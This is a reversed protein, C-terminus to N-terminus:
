EVEAFINTLLGDTFEFTVNVIRGSHEDCTQVTLTGGDENENELFEAEEFIDKLSEYDNRM